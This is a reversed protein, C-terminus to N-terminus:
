PPPRACFSPLRRYTEKTNKATPFLKLKSDENRRIVTFLFRQAQNQQQEPLTAAWADFEEKTM